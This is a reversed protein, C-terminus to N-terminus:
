PTSGTLKWTKDVHVVVGAKRLLQIAVDFRRDSRKCSVLYCPDKKNSLNFVIQALTNEDVTNGDAKWTKNRLSQPLYQRAQELRM